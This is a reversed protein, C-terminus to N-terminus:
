QIGKAGRYICHTEGEALNELLKTPSEVFATSMGLFLLLHVEAAQGLIHAWPLLSLSRDECGWDFGSEFAAMQGIMNAHTLM